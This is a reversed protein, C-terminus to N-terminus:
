NCYIVFSKSLLCTADRVYVDRTDILEKLFRAVTDFHEDAQDL